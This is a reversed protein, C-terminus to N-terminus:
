SVVFHGDDGISDSVKTTGFDSDPVGLFVNEIKFPFDRCEEILVVNVGTSSIDIRLISIFNELVDHSFIERVTKKPDCCVREPIESLHEIEGITGNAPANSEAFGLHPFQCEGKSFLSGSKLVGNFSCTFSERLFDLFNVSERFRVFSTIIGQEGEIGNSSPFLMEVKNGDASGGSEPWRLHSNTSRFTFDDKTALRPVADFLLQYNPLGSRSVLELVISFNGKLYHDALDLRNALLRDNSQQVMEQVSRYIDDLSCFGSASGEADNNLSDENM